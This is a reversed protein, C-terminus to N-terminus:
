AADNGCIYRSISSYLVIGVRIGYGGLELLNQGCSKRLVLDSAGGCAAAFEIEMIRNKDLVKQGTTGPKRSKRYSRVVLVVQAAAFGNVAPAEVIADDKFNEGDAVSPGM